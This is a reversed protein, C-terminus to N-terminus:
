VSLDGGILVFVFRDGALEPGRAAGRREPTFCGLKVVLTKLAASLPVDLAQAAAEAGKRRYDYAHSTFAVGMRSLAQEGLSAM